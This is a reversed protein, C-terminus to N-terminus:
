LRCQCHIGLPLDVHKLNVVYVEIPNSYVSFSFTWAQCFINFIDLLTFVIDYQVNEASQDQHFVNFYM